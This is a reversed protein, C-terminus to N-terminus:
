EDVYQPITAAQMDQSHHISCCHAFHRHTPYLPRRTLAWSLLGPEYPLELTLKRLFSRQKGYHQALDCNCWCYANRKGLVRQYTNDNTKGSTVMSAEMLHFGLTIKIKM